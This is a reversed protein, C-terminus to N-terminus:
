RASTMWWGSSLTQDRQFLVGATDEIDLGTFFDDDQTLILRSHERAYRAISGGDSGLGFEAVDDIREVDHDIINGYTHSLVNRFRTGQAMEEALSGSLVGIEGLARM